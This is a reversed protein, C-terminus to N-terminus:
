ASPLVVVNAGGFPAAGMIHLNQRLRRPTTDKGGPIFFVQRADNPRDPQSHAVSVDERVFWNTFEYGPVISLVDWSIVPRVLDVEFKVRFFFKRSIACGIVLAAIMADLLRIFQALCRPRYPNAAARALANQDARQSQSGAWDSDKLNWGGGLTKYLQVAVTRRILETFALANEAPFIPENPM